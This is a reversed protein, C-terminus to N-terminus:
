HLRRADDNTANDSPTASTAGAQHHVIKWLSGERHFINTAILSGGPLKEFCVVSAVDGYIQVQADRCNIEPLEPNSLIAAWSTVIGQRDFVPGWGPHLCCVPATDSWLQEMAKPDRDAFARYFADNAFLVEDADAM